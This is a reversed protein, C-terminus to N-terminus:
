IEDINGNKHEVLSTGNQISEDYSPNKGFKYGRSLLDMVQPFEKKAASEKKIGKMIFGKLILLLIIAGIGFGIVMGWAWQAVLSAVATVAAAVILVLMVVMFVNVTKAQGHSKKCDACRPVEIKKTSYEIRKKNEEPDTAQVEGYMYLHISKKSEAEKTGCFWCTM